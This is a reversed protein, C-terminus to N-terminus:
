PRLASGLADRVALVGSESVSTTDSPLTVLLGGDLPLTSTGAPLRDVQVPGADALYTSWGVVVEGPKPEQGKRLRHSTLTCWSPRWATVVARLMALDTDRQYLAMAIGDAEPLQIVVSNSTLGPVATPAGCRVSLGVQVDQGNWLAVSFGLETMVSRPGDDRRARGALLLEELTEVSPDVRRELAAKRNGSTEFWSELLPDVGGLTVLFGSLRRACDAASEARPGWYAGLYFSEAV